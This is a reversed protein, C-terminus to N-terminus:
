FCRRTGKPRHMSSGKADSVSMYDGTGKSTQKEGKETEWIDHGPLLIALYFSYVGEFGDQVWQGM